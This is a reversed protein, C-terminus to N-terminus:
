QPYDNKKSPYWNLELGKVREVPEMATQDSVQRDTGKGTQGSLREDIM